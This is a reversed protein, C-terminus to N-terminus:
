IQQALDVHGVGHMGLIFRRLLNQELPAPIIQQRDLAVLEGNFLSECVQEVLLTKGGGGVAL